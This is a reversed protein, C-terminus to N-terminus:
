DASLKARTTPCEVCHGRPDNPSLFSSGTQIEGSVYRSGVCVYVGTGIAWDLDGVASGRPVWPETIGAGASASWDKFRGGGVNWYLLRPQRYRYNLEAKDLEPVCEM